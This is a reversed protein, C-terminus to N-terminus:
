EFRQPWTITDWSYIYAPDKELTGARIMWHEVVWRVRSWWHAFRVFPALPWWAYMSANSVWVHYAHRYILQHWWVDGTGWGSLKEKSLQITPHQVIQRARVVAIWLWWPVTINM